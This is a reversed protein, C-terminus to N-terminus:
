KPMFDVENKVLMAVRSLEIKGEPTQLLAVERLFHDVVEPEGFYSMFRDFFKELDTMLVKEQGSFFTLLLKHVLNYPDTKVDNLTM